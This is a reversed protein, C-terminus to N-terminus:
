NSTPRPVRASIACCIEYNITDIRNALEEAGITEEGQSGILVVEEGARADLRPGLAITLNDMSVNGVVPRRRGSVLVESRNSLARRYGDGYGIPVLGVWTDEPAIWTRGYGVSQGARMQKLDALYSRLTLAPRLGEARPDRGFPDLGYIAVGCRVLDFHSRPERLTAASNAAHVVAAPFEARVAEAFPAFRELQQGFFPGDPEDATAFHTWAGAVESAPDGACRRALGLLEVPDGGGARGMGTDYKLHARATVGLAAARDSLMRRFGETWVTVEAGAGLARDLEVPALAGLVLVPVGPHRAAIEEAETATAVALRSAGGALAAGAVAVAGHGYGDAKVVACLETSAGVLRKLRACNARVAGLDVEAVARVM